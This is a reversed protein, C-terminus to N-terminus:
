NIRWWLTHAQPSHVCVAGQVSIITSSIFTIVLECKLFIHYTTKKKILILLLNLWAFSICIEIIHDIAPLQGDKTRTEKHRFLEAGGAACSLGKDTAKITFDECYIFFSIFILWQETRFPRTQQGQCVPLYLRRDCTRKDPFDACGNILLDGINAIWIPLYSPPEFRLWSRLFHNKWWSLVYITLWPKSSAKSSCINSAIHLSIALIDLRVTVNWNQHSHKTRSLQM